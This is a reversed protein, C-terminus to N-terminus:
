PGSSTTTALATTNGSTDTSGISTTTGTAQSAAPTAFSGDRLAREAAPADRAPQSGVYHISGAAPLVMGLAAAQQQIREGAGLRSVEARLEGNTRDLAASREVARGIGANLKLLSVQMAVIGILLTGLVPIWGRGRVLSAVVRRDPLTAVLGVVRLGLPQATVPARRRPAPMARLGRAPGSVRRPIRPAVSSRDRVPASARASARRAAATAAAPPTM